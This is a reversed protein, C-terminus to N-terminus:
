IYDEIMWLPLNDLWNFEISVEFFGAGFKFGNSLDVAFGIGVYLEISINVTDGLQIGGYLSCISLKGSIGLGLNLDGSFAKTGLYFEPNFINDEELDKFIKGSKIGFDFVGIGVRFFSIEKSKDISIGSQEEAYFVYAYFNDSGSGENDSNYLAIRKPSQGNTDYYTVPNNICYAYMNASKIGGVNGVMGDSSIFRGIEPNYYRSNLYYFGTEEDFRYGRYRYPNIDGLSQNPTQYVINGWADYKYQVVTNGSIDVLEIIDGQLNKIYFYETGNYNMSLLTGDVDYTYHITNSGWTEVLVKDGDLIYNTITTGSCTGVTKQTRIGQDNYKYSFTACYQSRSVLDRGDWNYYNNYYSTRSDTTQIVNGSNDYSYSVYYSLTGSVYYEIKTVQDGWNNIYYLRKEKLPTGLLSGNSYGYEKINTINGQTDYTYTISKSYEGSLNIKVHIDERVLQNFGDYYYDYRDITNPPVNGDTVVINTINHSADYTYTYKFQTNSDKKYEISFIRTTANGMSSDVNADDYVFLQTLSLTGIVLEINNLRKLSDDDYNFYEHVSTTGTNYYTYEYQGNSTDYHYLVSRSINSIIYEYRSINGLEDYLYNIKNGDKDTTNTIRGSIDRSYFYINDNYIDKYIALNGNADYEYESRVVGNFSITKIQNEDTYTFSIYDGNGYTQTNLKNTYYTISNEVEEQYDYTMLTVNAVKVSTVQDLFNYIFEYTYGDRNIKWLRGSSDYIYSSNITAGATIDTAQTSELSGHEDYIFLQSDGLANVINTILGV